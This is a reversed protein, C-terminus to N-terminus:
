QNNKHSRVKSKIAIPPSNTMYKQLNALFPQRQPFKIWSPNAIMSHTIDMWLAIEELHAKIAAPANQFLSLWSPVDETLLRTFSSQDSAEVAHAAFESSQGAKTELGKLSAACKPQVNKWILLLNYFTTKLTEFQTSLHKRNGKLHEDQKPVNKGKFQHRLTELDKELKAFKGQLEPLSAKLEESSAILAFKIEVQIRHHLSRNWFEVFTNKLEKYQNRQLITECHSFTPSQASIM